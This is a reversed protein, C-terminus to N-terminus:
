MTFTFTSFFSHLIIINKTQYAGFGFLLVYYIYIVIRVVHLSNFVQTLLDYIDIRMWHQVTCIKTLLGSTVRNGKRALLLWATLTM